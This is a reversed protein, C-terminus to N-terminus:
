ARPAGGHRLGSRRQVRRRAAAADREGPGRSAATGGAASRRRDGVIRRDAGWRQPARLSGDAVPDDGPPPTRGAARRNRRSTWAPYLTMDDDDVPPLFAPVRQAEDARPVQALSLYEAFRRASLKECACALIALFARGAPHPRRTGRDFWAPVGARRLAHDLLGLYRQPSRLFVAIDDFAVGSRAEQLIRRAIEVSERGEGPASFFRVDGAPTREPPQSKAFLYRRLAVLDSDGKQELVEPELGLTALRELAAVDGFPVTMLTQEGHRALLAELFAFEVDSEIPVDLLLLAPLQSGPAPRQLAQTAADFLLARDTARAGAFQADFRELLGALDAGGLPLAALRDAGVEALRLEQLTRALAPSDPRARSRSSISFRATRSRTSHRARRLPKRDLATVPAFGQESLIPGALHLALQTLSFRHLGITAGAEVAIARALDDAAGRSAGVIWVDRSPARSLDGRPAHLRVFARAEDLRLQASSSEILRTTM